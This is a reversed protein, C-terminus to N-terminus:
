NGRDRIRKILSILMGKIAGTSKELKTYEEINIYELEKSLLLCYETEQISGLSTQFFNATDADTYKGCGEVINLVVSLCARKLQSTLIYQEERPFKRTIRYIELTLLHSKQWVILDKYNQM